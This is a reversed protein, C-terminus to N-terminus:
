NYATLLWGPHFLMWSHGFEVYLNARVRLRLRVKVM